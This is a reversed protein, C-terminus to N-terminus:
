GQQTVPPAACQRAPLAPALQNRSSVGLKTFVKRLHYAVTARSIFLQAAIEPNSAGGGALRAILAEQATLTDPTAVTRQRAHGGTARLEIRAREAFAAAGISDFIEYASGLQDRADRRRRQRRLWEGYVLRARALDVRLRTRGFRDIAERYLNEAAAGDSVLARSRAEAGLAWDTGCARAIGSLRQLAGAAREPVASRVAAEILEVLAWSAFRVAPSDESARQAAALAEEYRGLSNSLVAAAWQVSSLGGGEGRRAVDDTAAQILHAAQAERGRFVALALAGYPAISSGTAETVSEAQAVMSAAEAFEGAFLHLGARTNFAIPLAILAGADRALTVQRGSLVDWSAYDWVIGAAHCALWLWRLGEERSVDTGRFASVAQRLVPAGASYGKCILLALGDLLLDPARAPGPPPPAACAADAVERMGGGLALRGAFMAAALADLYTERALRSDLPEFQRAAKLLLPPAESGRSSAFAIQGRLRDARARRFEDPPGAEATALLGLTADFAGAQYKAQAAALARGSRRAPDLTLAASRELFAAAAALGGRAQAHSASRELESAVDEDPGLTAQARHWARRDPDAQPDTAGALAQHAARREQPSAARYVASRVLPHRFTVREGIALLGADTAPAVAEAGIGLREAARWVLAPEGAPEAAAVLMLRQAAAPLVELRRRFSDEIRGPLGPRGPVSPLGFGGALEAPTVGRPLELLALPNGRTEAVIRDRVREDLPGRIVSSLLERADGDRLGGVLLEPLERFEEGQERTAFVLAVPEALLRRAVFALAQTSARDLWQADDIVCLLPQQEAVESLLSLAALGVLFRDPAAGINLGFAVGLADRQPDPLGELKGLMPACLQQLAAFALEMESEVGAVRAVRLGAASEIAYELLATKGVGPEGRMVLVGSRGARAADLLQSLATREPLRDLLM